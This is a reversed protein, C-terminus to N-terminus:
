WELDHLNLWSSPSCFVDPRAARDRRGDGEDAEHERQRVRGGHVEAVHGIRHGALRPVGFRAAACCIISMRASSSSFVRAVEGGLLALQQLLHEVLQAHAEHLRSPCRRGLGRM